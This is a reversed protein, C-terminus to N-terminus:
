KKANTVAQASAKPIQAGYGKVAGFLKLADAFPYQNAYMSVSSKISGQQNQGLMSRLQNAPSNPDHSVDEKYSATLFHAAYEKHVAKAIIDMSEPAVNGEASELEVDGFLDVTVPFLTGEYTILLDGQKNFLFMNNDISLKRKADNHTADVASWANFAMLNNHISYDMGSKARIGYGMDSMEQTRTWTFLVTNNAFDLFGRQNAKGGYLEVASMVNGVFVCNEISVKGDAQFRIGANNGNLFMCNKIFLDGEFGGSSPGGILPMKANPISTTSAKTPPHLLLGGLGEIHGKTAHYNNSPGKDFFLGDLMIVGKKVMIRLLPHNLGSKNSKNDPQVKTQYVLVDRKSFDKSYGGEITVAKKLLINGANMLGFYNGEAVKIIDGDAAKDIAKQINKLPKEPLKGAFSNKGNAQSVYWEQACLPTVISAMCFFTLALIRQLMMSKGREHVMFKIMAAAIAIVAAM